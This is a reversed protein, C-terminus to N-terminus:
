ARGMPLDSFNSVGYDRRGNYPPPDYSPPHEYLPLPYEDPHIPDPLKMIFTVYNDVNTLVERPATLALNRAAVLGTTQKDLPVLVSAFTLLAGM